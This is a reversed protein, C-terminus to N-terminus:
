ALTLTVTGRYTQPPTNAPITLTVNPNFSYQVPDLVALSNTGTAIPLGAGASVLSAGAAAGAGGIAPSVSVTAPAFTMPSTPSLTVSKTADSLGMFNTSAASLTWPAALGRGDSVTVAGFAGSAQSPLNANFRAGSLTASTPASLTLSGQTVVVDVLVDDAAAPGVFAQSALALLVSGAGFGLRKRM